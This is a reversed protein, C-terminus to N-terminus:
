NGYKGSRINFIVNDKEAKVYSVLNAKFADNDSLYSYKETYIQIDLLICVLMRCRKPHINLTFCSLVIRNILLVEEETFPCDNM